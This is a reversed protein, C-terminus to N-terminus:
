PTFYIGISFHLDINDGEVSQGPNDSDPIDPTLNYNFSIEPAVRVKTFSMAAGLVGVFFFDQELDESAIDDELASGNSEIRVTGSLQFNGAVGAGIYPATGSINAKLSVVFPITFNLYSFKTTLPGIWTDDTRSFSTTRIQPTLDIMITNAIDFGAGLGFHFGIGSLTGTGDDPSFSSYNLGLKTGLRTSVPGTLCQGYVFIILLTLAVIGKKM